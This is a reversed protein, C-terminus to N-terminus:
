LPDIEHLTTAANPCVIRPIFTLGSFESTTYTTVSLALTYRMSSAFDAVGVIEIKVNGYAVLTAAEMSTTFLSVFIM